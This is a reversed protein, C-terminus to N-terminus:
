NRSSRVLRATGVTTRAAGTAERQLRVCGDVARRLQAAMNEPTKPTSWISKQCFTGCRCEADNWPCMIKGWAHGKLLLVTWGHTEAYPVAAEIEKNPHRRRPSM